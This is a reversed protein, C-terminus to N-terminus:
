TVGNRTKMTANERGLMRDLIYPLILQQTYCLRNALPQFVAPPPFRVFAPLTPVFLAQSSYYFMDFHRFRTRSHHPRRLKFAGFVITRRNLSVLVFGKNTGCEYGGPRQPPAFDGSATLRFPRSKEGQMM